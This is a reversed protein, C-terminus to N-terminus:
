IQHFSIGFDHGQMVFTSFGRGPFDRILKAALMDAM